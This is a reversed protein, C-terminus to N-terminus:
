TYKCKRNHSSEEEKYHAMILRVIVAEECLVGRADTVEKFVTKVAPTKADQSLFYNKIPRGKREFAETLKQVPHFGTLTTFHQLWHLVALYLWLNTVESIPIPPSKNICQRQKVYTTSM